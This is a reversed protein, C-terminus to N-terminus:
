YRRYAYMEMVIGLSLSIIIAEGGFTPPVLVRALLLNAWANIHKPVMGRSNVSETRGAALCSQTCVIGRSQSISLLPSLKKEVMLSAALVWLPNPNLVPMCNPVTEELASDLCYWCDQKGPRCLFYDPQYYLAPINAVPHLNSNGCLLLVEILCKTSM